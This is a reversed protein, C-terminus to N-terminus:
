DLNDFNEETFKKKKEFGTEILMLMKITIGLSLTDKHKNENLFNRFDENHMLKILVEREEDSLKELEENFAIAQEKRLDTRGFLYDLTEDFCDAIKILLKKNRPLRRGSEYGAITSADVGIEEALDKQYMDKEKRLKRLREEFSGM